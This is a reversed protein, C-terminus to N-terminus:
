EVPLCFHTLGQSLPPDVRSGPHGHRHSPFMCPFLYSPRSPIGHLLDSRTRTQCIKSRNKAITSFLDVLFRCTRLRWAILYKLIIPTRIGNGLSFDTLSIIFLLTVASPDKADDFGEAQSDTVAHCEFRPCASLLELM